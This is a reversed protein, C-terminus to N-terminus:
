DGEVGAQCFPVPLLQIRLQPMSEYSLAVELSLPFM